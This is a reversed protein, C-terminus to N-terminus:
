RPITRSGDPSEEVNPSGWVHFPQFLLDLDLHLLLLLITSISIKLIKLHEM